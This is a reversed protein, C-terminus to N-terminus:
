KVSFLFSMNQISYTSSNDAEHM